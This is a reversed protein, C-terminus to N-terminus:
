FARTQPGKRDSRECARIPLTEGGGSRRACPVDTGGAEAVAHWGSAGHTFWECAHASNHITILDATRRFTLRCSLTSAPYHWLTPTVVTPSRFVEAGLGQSVLECFDAAHALRAEITARLVPQAITCVADSRSHEPAGAAVGASSAFAAM